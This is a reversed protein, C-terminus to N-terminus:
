LTKLKGQYFAIRETNKKQTYYDILRNIVKRYNAKDQIKLTTEKSYLDYAKLSTTLLEEYKQNMKNNLDKRKAVDAASTGKVERLIDDMDSIQIEVDESLLFNALVSNPDLKAAKNLAAEYRAQRAAYDAPKSDFIYANNRLEVAYDLALAANDPYKNSIEELKAMRKAKDNGMDGLEISIWYETDPYLEKGLALYKDSKAANGKKQHYQVLLAYIDRFDKDKIRADALREFYPMSEDEMKASYAAAATFRVLATDLVPYSFSNYSFKKQVVYSEVDLAKRYNEYAKAYEKKNWYHDGKSTYIDRVIFLGVNQDITMMINKPDMEQYKKYALFAENAADFSLQNTSDMKAIQSYVNGKWYWANPLSQNKPDALFKDIKDKAEDYKGKSYKEQVDELKQAHLAMFSTIAIVAFLLKLM